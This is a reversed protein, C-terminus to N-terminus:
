RAGELPRLFTLRSEGYDREDVIGLRGFRAPDLPRRASHELVLEGGPRLLPAAREALGEHDGFAYPPDAFVLDFGGPNKEAVADLAAPLRGRLVIAERKSTLSALTSRLDRAVRPDGEVLVVRAAGRGLAELSVVGSGAFLDLVVAGPVRDQWISFLAERVRGETPRVRPGVPLHRGGFRGGTVRVRGSM